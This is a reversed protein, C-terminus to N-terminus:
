AVSPDVQAHAEAASVDGTAVTRFIPVRRLVEVGGAMRDHPRDLRALVPLPAIDITHHHVLHSTEIPQEDPASLPLQHQRFTLGWDPSDRIFTCLFTRSVGFPRAWKISNISLAPKLAAAAAVPSEDRVAAFHRYRCAQSPTSPGLPRVYREFAFLAYRCFSGTRM